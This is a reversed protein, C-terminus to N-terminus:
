VPRHTRARSRARGRPKKLFPPWGVVAGAALATTSAWGRASPDPGTARGFADALERRDQEMKALLAQKDAQTTKTMTAGPPPPTWAYRAHSNPLPRREPCTAS